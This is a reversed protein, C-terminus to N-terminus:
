ETGLRVFVGGGGTETFTFYLDGGTTGVNGYPSILPYRCLDPPDNAETTGDTLTNSRDTSVKTANVTDSAARDSGGLDLNTELAGTRSPTIRSVALEADGSTRIARSLVYIASLDFAPAANAQARMYAGDDYSGAGRGWYAAQYTTYMTGASNYTATRATDSFAMPSHFNACFMYNNDFVYLRKRPADVVPTTTPPETPVGNGSTLTRYTLSLTPASASNTRPNKFQPAPYTNTGDPTGPGDPWYVSKGAPLSGYGLAFAYRSHRVPGGILSTVDYTYATGDAFTWPTQHGSTGTISARGEEFLVPTTTPGPPATANGTWATTTNRLFGGSTDGNAFSGVRYIRPPYSTITGSAELQLTAETIVVKSSTLLSSAGPVTFRLYSRTAGGTPSGATGSLNTTAPSLPNARYTLGGTGPLTDSSNACVNVADGDTADAKVSVTTTGSQSYAYQHATGYVARTADGDAEDVFLPRSFTVTRAILNVWAVAPGSDRLLHVFAYVPKYYDPTTTAGTHDTMGTFDASGDQVEIAPPAMIGATTTLTYSAIEQGAVADFDHLVGATDALLVRGNCATVPAAVMHDPSPGTYDTCGGCTIPTGTAVTWSTKTFTSSAGTNTVTYKYLKGNNLPVYVIDSSGDIASLVPDVTPALFQATASPEVETNGSNLLTMSGDTANLIYLDADDSLAYLRTCASNLALASFTTNDNLDRFTSPTPSDANVRVLKGNDALAYIYRNTDTYLGTALGNPCDDGAGFSAHIENDLLRGPYANGSGKWASPATPYATQLQYSPLGAALDEAGRRGERLRAMYAARAQALRPGTVHHSQWDLSRPESLRQGAMTLAFNAKLAAALPAWAQCGALLSVLSTLVVRTATPTM